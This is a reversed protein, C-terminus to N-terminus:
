ILTLAHEIVAQRARPYCGCEDIGKYWEPYEELTVQYFEGERLVNPRAYKIKAYYACSPRSYKNLIEIDIKHTDRLWDIVQQWLPALIGLNYKELEYFSTDRCILRNDRSEYYGLCNENFGKDILINAIEYPVFQEKM